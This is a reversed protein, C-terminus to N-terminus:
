GPDNLEGSLDSSGLKREIHFGDLEANIAEESKSSAYISRNDFSLAWWNSV